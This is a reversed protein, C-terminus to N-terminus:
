CAGAELHTDAAVWEHDGLNRLEINQFTSM